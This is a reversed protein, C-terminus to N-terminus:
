PIDIDVDLVNGTVRSVTVECHLGLMPGSLIWAKPLEVLELSPHAWNRWTILDSLYDAEGPEAVLDDFSVGVVTAELDRKGFEIILHDTALQTATEIVDPEPATVPLWDFPRVFRTQRLSETLAELVVWDLQESDHVVPPENKWKMALESLVITTMRQYTVPGLLHFFRQTPPASPDNLLQQARSLASKVTPPATYVAGCGCAAAPTNCWRDFAEDRMALLIAADVGVVHDLQALSDYGDDAERALIIHTSLAAGVGSFYMLRPQNASNVLDLVNHAQEGSFSVGSFQGAMGSCGTNARLGFAYDRLRALAAPSVMPVAGLEELGAHPNETDFPRFQLINAAAKATIGAGDDLKEGTSENVLLLTAWAQEKTFAVGEIVAFAEPKICGMDTVFDRLSRLAFDGVLPLEDLTHIDSIIADDATGCQGDLGVRYQELAGAATPHWGLTVDFFSVSRNCDNVLDLMCAQEAGTLTALTVGTDENEVEAPVGVSGDFVCGAGWLALVPLWVNKM